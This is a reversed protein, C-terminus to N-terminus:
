RNPSIAFGSISMNEKGGEQINFEIDGVGTNGKYNSSLHFHQNEEMQLKRLQGILTDIENRRMSITIGYWGTKYDELKVYM